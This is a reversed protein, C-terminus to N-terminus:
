RRLLLRLSKVAEIEKILGSALALQYIEFPPRGGDHPNPFVDHIALIGGRMLKPAWCRYDSHAAHHSHGGDIFVFALPTLIIQAALESTTVIPIVCDELQATRINHRFAGLSDMGGTIPDALTPDHYEEGPQNEESGYHHDIALLIGGHKQVQQGIIITSKGCYSGIEVCLGRAASLDAARALAKGEAADLFGRITLADDM